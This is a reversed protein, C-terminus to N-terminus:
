SGGSSPRDPGFRKRFQNISVNTQTVTVGGNKNALVVFM